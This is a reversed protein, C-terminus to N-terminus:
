SSISWKSPRISCPRTSRWRAKNSRTGSTRGNPPAVTKVKETNTAIGYSWLVLKPGHPTIYSPYLNAYEPM